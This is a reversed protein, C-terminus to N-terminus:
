NSLNVSEDTNTDIMLEDSECLYHAFCNDSIADINVLRRIRSIGDVASRVGYYSGKCETHHENVHMITRVMLQEVVSVYKAPMSVRGLHILQRVQPLPRYKGHYDKQFTCELLALTRIDKATGRSTVLVVYWMNENATTSPTQYQEVLPERKPEAPVLEVPEKIVEPQKIVEVYDIPVFEVEPEPANVPGDIKPEPIEMQEPEPVDETTVTSETDIINGETDIYLVGPIPTYGGDWDRRLTADSIDTYAYHFQPYQTFWEPKLFKVYEMAEGRRGPYKGYLYVATVQTSGLEGPVRNKNHPNMIFKFRWKFVCHVKKEADLIGIPMYVLPTDSIIKEPEPDPEPVVEPGDGIPEPDPEEVAPETQTSEETEVPEEKPPLEWGPEADKNGCMDFLDDKLTAVQSSIDAIKQTLDDEATTTTQGNDWAQLYASIARMIAQHETQQFTKVALVEETCSKISKRLNKLDNRLSVMQDNLCNLGFNVNTALQDVAKKTKAM